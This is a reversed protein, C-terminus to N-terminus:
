WARMREQRRIEYPRGALPQLSFQQSRDLVLAQRFLGAALLRRYVRRNRFEEVTEAHATALLKAGCYMSKEMALVDQESTIEDVALWDPRMTRLLMEMGEQKGCGQLMDVHIGLDYAGLEGREDAVGVRQGMRSLARICARLLTTKGSGPPGILLVSDHLYPTLKETDISIDHSLRINLSTVQKMGIREGGRSVLTGCVGIRHGEPLTLYGERLTEQVSYGSSGSAAALIQELDCRSTLGYGSKLPVVAERGAYGVCFPQGARLRLEQVADWDAGHLADRYTQPLLQLLENPQKM